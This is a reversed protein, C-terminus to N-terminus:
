KAAFWAFEVSAVLSLLYTATTGYLAETFNHGGVLCYFWFVMGIALYSCLWAAVFVSLKRIYQLAAVGDSSAPVDIHGAIRDAAM